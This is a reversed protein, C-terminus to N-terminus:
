HLTIAPGVRTYTSEKNKSPEYTKFSPTGSSSATFPLALQTAAPCGAIAQVVLNTGQVSWTGAARLPAPDTVNGDIIQVTNGSIVIVGQYQESSPNNYFVVATRYYTGDQPAGGLASPYTASSNASSIVPAPNTATAPCVPGAVVAGITYTESAIASPNLGVKYAVARLTASQGVAVPGTYVTGVTPSPTSGDLTYRISAGATATQITVLVAADFQGGKPTLQPTATNAVGARGGRFWGTDADHQLTGSFTGAGADVSGTFSTGDNALLSLSGDARLQGTLTGSGGHATDVYTGTIAGSPDVTLEWTGFQASGVGFTGDWTGVYLGFISDRVHSLATAASVLTPTSGTISTLVAVLDADSATAWNVSKGAAAAAAGSPITIGNNPNGDQDITMLFRTIAVVKPDTEASAGTAGALDVPTLIAKAATTGFSIGGLTFTVPQGPEYIFLGDADTTGSTGGSTYHIGGVASDILRGTATGPGSSSSKSGGGGCAVLAACLAVVLGRAVAKVTM